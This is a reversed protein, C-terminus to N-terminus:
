EFRSHIVLILAVMQRSNLSIEEAVRQKALKNFSIM